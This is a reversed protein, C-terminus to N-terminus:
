ECLAVSWLGASLAARIAEGSASRYRHGMAEVDDSRPNRPPLLAEAMNTWRNSSIIAFHSFRRYLHLEVHIYRRRAGVRVARGSSPREFVRLM